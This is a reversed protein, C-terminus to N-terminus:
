SAERIAAAVLEIQERPLEPYLPLSLVELAACESHPFDGAGYGSESYAPLLHVPHRYHIGTEIGKSALSQRLADRNPSRVAFIHYVHAGNSAACPTQVRSEKLLERYWAARDRRAANWADLHRLKVRLVAGQIADM